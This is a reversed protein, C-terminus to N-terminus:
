ADGGSPWSGVGCEITLDVGPTCYAVHPLKQHTAAAIARVVAALRPHEELLLPPGPPELHDLQPLLSWLMAAPLAAFLLVAAHPVQSFTHALYLGILAFIGVALTLVLVYFGVMCLLAAVARVALSSGVVANHRLFRYLAVSRPEDRRAERV